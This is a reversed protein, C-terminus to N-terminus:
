NVVVLEVPGRYNESLTLEIEERSGATVNLALKEDSVQGHTTANITMYTSVDLGTAKLALTVPGSDSPTFWIKRKCPSLVLNRVASIEM